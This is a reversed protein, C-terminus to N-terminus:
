HTEVLWRQKKTAERRSTKQWKRKSLVLLAFSHRYSLTFVQLYQLDSKSHVVIWIVLLIPLICMCIIVCKILDPASTSDTNILPHNWKSQMTAVNIVCQSLCFQDCYVTIVVWMMFQNSPSGCLPKNVLIQLVDNCFTAKKRVDVYKRLEAIKTLHLCWKLQARILMERHTTFLIFSFFCLTSNFLYSSSGELLTFWRCTCFFNSILRKLLESFPSGPWFDHSIGDILHHMEIRAHFSLVQVAALQVLNWIKVREQVPHLLGPTSWPHMTTIRKM